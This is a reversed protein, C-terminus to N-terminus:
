RGQWTFQRTETAYTSPIPTGNDGRSAVTVYWEFVHRKGDTPQWEAPLQFSLDRTTARYTVGATTDRLTVLYVETPGLTGSSTWRLTPLESSEFLMNDSPLQSFPANFTATPTLTATESGNPTPSLTRTPLPVPIRIRQGEGLPPNLKCTPGGGPQGFDCELFQIEPNLERLIKITTKYTFVIGVATDGKKVTYWAQGPPLAGEAANAASPANTAGEVQAPAGGTPTPWPIDLEQDIQLQNPDKMGNREVIIDVIALDRHGCKAALGYLTDGKKVKQLCPGRTPTLTVTPPAPTVTNLPITPVLLPTPGKTNTPPLTGSSGDFTPVETPAGSIGVESSTSEARPGSPAPSNLRTAILIGGIALLAIVSVIVLTGQLPITPLTGEYLDAEGQDWDAHVPGELVARRSIRTPTNRGRAARGTADIPAGSLTAGCTSCRTAELPHQAQCIPCSQAPSSARKKLVIVTLNGPSKPGGNYCGEVLQWFSL